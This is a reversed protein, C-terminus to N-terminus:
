ITFVCVWRNLFIELPGVVQLVAPVNWFCMPNVFMKELLYDFALRRFRVRSDQVTKAIDVRGLAIIPLSHIKRTPSSFNVACNSVAISFSKGQIIHPDSLPFKPHVVVGLDM